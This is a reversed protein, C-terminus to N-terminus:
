PTRESIWRGFRGIREAASSEVALTGLVREAVIEIWWRTPPATTSGRHEDVVDACANVAM